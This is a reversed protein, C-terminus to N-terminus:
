KKEDTNLAATLEVDEEYQAEEEDEMASVETDSSDEKWQKYEGTEPLASILYISINTCIIHDWTICHIILSVSPRVLQFVSEQHITKINTKEFVTTM